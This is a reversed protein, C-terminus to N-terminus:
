TIMNKRRTLAMKLLRYEILHDPLKGGRKTSASHENGRLSSVWIRRVSLKNFAM